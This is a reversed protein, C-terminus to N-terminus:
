PTLPVSDIRRPGEPRFGPDYGLEGILKGLTWASPRLNTVEWFYGWSEHHTLPPRLALPPYDKTKEHSEVYEADFLHHPYDLLHDSATHSAYILTPVLQDGRDADLERFLLFADTGFIVRGQEQCIGVADRLHVWPVPALLMLGRSGAM